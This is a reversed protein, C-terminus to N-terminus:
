REELRALVEGAHRRVAESPDAAAVGELIRRAEPDRSARAAFWTLAATRVRENPDSRLVTAVASTQGREGLTRVAIGRVEPSPDATARLVLTEDIRSGSMRRLAHVASSRVREEASETKELVAPLAAAQGSNGVAELTLCQEEADRARALRALLIRGSEEGSSRFAVAGLALLASDAIGRDGDETTEALIRETERGPHDLLAAALVAEQRIERNLTGDVILEGLATEVQAAGFASVLLSAGEEGLRIRRLAEAVSEPRAAFLAEADQLLEWSNSAPRALIGDLSLRRDRVRAEYRRSRPDVAAREETLEPSLRRFGRREPRRSPLTTDWSIKELLCTLSWEGRVKPTDLSYREHCEILGVIGTDRDIYATTGGEVRFGEAGFVGLYRTKTKAIEAFTHEGRRRSGRLEYRAEYRGTTDEETVLWEAAPEPPFVCQMGRVIAAVLVRDQADCELPCFIEDIRGRSDVTLWLNWEPVSTAEEGNVSLSADCLRYGLTYRDESRSYVLRDLRGAMRFRLGAEPSLTTELAADFRYSFVQGPELRLRLGAPLPSEVPSLSRRFEEARARLPTTRAASETGNRRSALAALVLLGGVPALLTARRM